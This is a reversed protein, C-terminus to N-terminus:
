RSEFTSFHYGDIKWEHEKMYRFIKQTLMEKKGQELEGVAVCRWEVAVGCVLGCRLVEVRLPIMYKQDPWDSPARQRISCRLSCGRGFGEYEDATWACSSCGRREFLRERVTWGRSAHRTVLKSTNQVRFVLDHDLILGSLIATVVAPDLFSTAQKADTIKNEVPRRKCSLTTVLLNLVM